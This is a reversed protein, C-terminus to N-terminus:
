TPAQAASSTRTASAAAAPPRIGAASREAASRSHTSAGFGARRDGGPAAPEVAAIALASVIAGTVTGWTLVQLSSLNM